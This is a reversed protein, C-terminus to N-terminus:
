SPCRHDLPHPPELPQATNVVGAGAATRSRPRALELRHRVVLCALRQADLTGGGVVVEVFEDLM